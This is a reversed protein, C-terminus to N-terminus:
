SGEQLPLKTQEFDVIDDSEDKFKASWTLRVAVKTSPAMVDWEILANVKCTPEAADTDDQFSDTAAKIIQPYRTELLNRFQEVISSLVRERREDASM